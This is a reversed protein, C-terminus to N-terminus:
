HATILIVFPVWSPHRERRTVKTYLIELIFQLICIVTMTQTDSLCVFVGASREALQPM